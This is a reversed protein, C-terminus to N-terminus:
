KATFTKGQAWGKDNVMYYVQYKTNSKLKLYDMRVSIQNSGQKAYATGRYYHGTKTDKVYVNFVAKKDNKLYTDKSHIYKIAFVQTDNLKKNTKITLTESNKKATVSTIKFNKSAKTGVPNNNYAYESLKSSIKAAKIMEPAVLHHVTGTQVTYYSVFGTQSIYEGTVTWRANQANRCTMVAQALKYRNKSTIGNGYVKAVNKAKSRLSSYKNSKLGNKKVATITTSVTNGKYKITIVAKGTKKVTIDGKSSVTIVNKNSSKYSVGSSLDSLYGEKYKHNKYQYYHLLDGMNFTMGREVQMNTDYGYVFTRTGSAAEAELKNVPLASIVTPAALLLCLCIALRKKWQKM